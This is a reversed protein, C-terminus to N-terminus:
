YIIIKYIDLLLLCMTFSDNNAVDFLILLKAVYSARVNAESEFIVLMDIYSWLIDFKARM